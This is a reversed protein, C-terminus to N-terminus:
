DFAPPRALGDPIEGIAALITPASHEGTHRDIKRSFALVGAHKPALEAALALAGRKTRPQEADGQQLLGDGDRDIPLVVFYTGTM